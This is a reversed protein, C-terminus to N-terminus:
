CNPNERSNSDLFFFFGLRLQFKPSGFVGGLFLCLSQPFYCKIIPNLKSELSFSELLPSGGWRVKNAWFLDHGFFLLSWSGIMSWSVDCHYTDGVFNLLEAM